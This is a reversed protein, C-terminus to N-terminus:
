LLALAILCVSTHSIINKINDNKKVIEGGCTGTNFHKPQICDRPFAWHVQRICTLTWCIYVLIWITIKLASIRGHQSLHPFSCHNCISFATNWMFSATVFKVFGIHRKYNGIHSNLSYQYGAITIHFSCLCHRFIRRWLFQRNESYKESLLTIMRWLDRERRPSGSNFLSNPLTFMHFQHSQGEGQPLLHKRVQRHTILCKFVATRHNCVHVEIPPCHSSM